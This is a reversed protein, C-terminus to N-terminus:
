NIYAVSSTTHDKVQFGKVEFMFEPNAAENGIKVQIDTKLNNKIAHRIYALLQVVEGIIQKDGLLRIDTVTQSANIASNRAIQASLDDDDFRMHRTIDILDSSENDKVERSM